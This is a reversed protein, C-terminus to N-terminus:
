SIRGLNSWLESRFNSHPIANVATLFFSSFASSQCHLHFFQRNEEMITVSILSSKWAMALGGSRGISPIVKLSDFGLSLLAQFRSADETKTEALFLLSPKPGKCLLRLNRLLGKGCAGQTNWYMYCDM